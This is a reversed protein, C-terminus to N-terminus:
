YPAPRCRPRTAPAPIGYAFIVIAAQKAMDILHDDNDPGVPDSIGILQKQKTVRLAFTNGVYIGGYGGM